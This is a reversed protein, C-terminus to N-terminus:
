LTVSVFESSLRVYTTTSINARSSPRILDVARDSVYDENAGARDLYCSKLGRTLSSQASLSSIGRGTIFALYSGLSWSRLMAVCSPTRM